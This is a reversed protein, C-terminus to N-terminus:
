LKIWSFAKGGVAYEKLLEKMSDETFAPSHTFRTQATAPQADWKKLLGLAAKEGQPTDSQLTGTWLHTYGLQRARDAIFNGLREGAGQGRAEPKVFIDLLGHHEDLINQQVSSTILHKQLPRVTATGLLKGESDNLLLLDAKPHKLYIDEIVKHADRKIMSDLFSPKKIEQSFLKLEEPTSLVSRLFKTLKGLLKDGISSNLFQRKLWNLGPWNSQEFSHRLYDKQEQHTRNLLTSFMMGITEPSTNYVRQMAFNAVKPLDQRTAMHTSLTSNEQIAPTGNVHAAEKVPQMASAKKPYSISITDGIKATIHTPELGSDVYFVADAGKPLPKPTTKPSTSPLSSLSM